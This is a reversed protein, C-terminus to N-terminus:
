GMDVIVLPGYKDLMFRKFLTTSLWAIRDEVADIYHIYKSLPTDGTNTKADLDAGNEVL